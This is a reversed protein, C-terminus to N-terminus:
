LSTNSIPSTISVTPLGNSVVTIAPSIAVAGVNDTAKATLLYTGAAVNAWTIAFPSSTDTGLLTSGEYFEVKSVTGDADSAAANITLNSDEAFVAQNLPSSISVTPASNAVLMVPTSTTVGGRNDTAKATLSHSGAPVNTWSYVFPFTTVTGILTTGRYFDVRSVIGDSDQANTTLLVDSGPPVSGTSPQVALEVSPLANVVLAVPASTVVMGVNDIARATLAYTGSPVDNWTFSYPATTDEGIKVEGQLFEVKSISGDSDSAVAQLSVNAPATVVTGDSPSTLGVLPPSTVTVHVAASTATLGSGDTAVATLTHVGAPTNQWIFNYPPPNTLEGLKVGKDYFEVKTITGNGDWDFADAVIVVDKGVVASEVPSSIAIVPVESVAPADESDGASAIHVGGCGKVCTRPQTLGNSPLSDGNDNVAIVRYDPMVSGSAMRIINILSCDDITNSDPGVETVFTWPAGFTLPKTEIRFKTENGSNDLWSLRCNSGTLASPSVPALPNDIHVYGSIGQSSMGNGESQITTLFYHQSSDRFLYLPFTEPTSNDPYVYFAVKQFTWEAGPCTRCQTYFFERKAPNTNGFQYLPVTGAAQNPHVYFRPAQLQDASHLPIEKTSYYYGFQPHKFRYVTTMASLTLPVPGVNLSKGSKGWLVQANGSQKFFGFGMGSVSQGELGVFAAPIELRAWEGAEPLSGMYRWNETGTTGVEYFNPGWFARHWRAGDHWEIFLQDPKQNPDLFVYTFLQDGPNVPQPAAGEFYHEKFATGSVSQHCATAAGSCPIWRWQDNNTVKTVAGAPLSGNIWQTDGPGTPAPQNFAGTKSGSFDWTARGGDLVFSMGDIDHGNWGFGVKWAPVELRVWEGAKPLPGAYFRSGTGDTGRNITNAGWYARHEWGGADKWELMIERPMNNIDLFVHTFLKVNPDDIRIKTTASDFSHSHVTSAPAVVKKFNRSQHAKTGSFAGPNADTWYWDIDGDARKVAGPPLEDDFWVFEGPRAPQANVGINVQDSRVIAGSDDTAVAKLAYAGDAPPIWELSFRDPGAMTGKGIATNNAFFEVQKVIGDEDSAAATLTVSQQSGVITGEIPAVLSVAPLRTVFINVPVSRTIAGSADTLVAVLTYQGTGVDNWTLGYQGSQIYTAAGLAVSDAFFEVSRIAGLSSSAMATLTIDTGPGFGQGASPSLISITGPGNVFFNVEASSRTRDGNDIAVAKLTHSGLGANWSLGYQNTVGTPTARGLSRPGEFLEVSAITGDPDTATVLINVTIPGVLTQNSTPSTISVLPRSNLNQNARTSVRAVNNDINPDDNEGAVVVSNDLTTGPATIAIEGERALAVITVDVSGGNVVNGLKCYVSGQRFKCTGQSSTASVFTTPEPLVDILGVNPATQPGSNTVHLAYTVSNDAVVPDPSDNATVSLDSSGLDPPSQVLKGVVFHGAREVRGYIMKNGFDPAPTDPSIISVDVWIPNEPDFPDPELHFISLNNFTNQDTVSPVDFSVVHPGSVQATTTVNVATNPLATYGPPLPISSSPADPTFTTQGEEYVNGYTISNVGDQTAISSTDIKAVAHPHGPMFIPNFFAGHRFFLDSIPEHSTPSYWYVIDAPRNVVTRRVENFGPLHGVITKYEILNRLSENPNILSNYNTNEPHEEGPKYRVIGIDLDQTSFALATKGLIPAGLGHTPGFWTGWRWHTHVCEPCGLGYFPHSVHEQSTLHINDWSGIDRGSQVVRVDTESIVPHLEKAFIPDLSPPFGCQAFPVNCDRFLGAVNELSGDVRYHLRTPINVAELVEGGRPEFEYYTTPFFRSCPLHGKPDCLDGVVRKEFKFIQTINLCSKSTPTLRDVGYHAVVTVGRRELDLNFVDVFVFYAQLRARMSSSNSDPTLEGRQASSMKNTKVFFYPVSMMKAMYRGNLRVDSIVLGDRDSVESKLTWGHGLDPISEAPPRPLVYTGCSAILEGSAVNSPLSEGVGGACAPPQCAPNFATVVYSYVVNPNATTDRYIVVLKGNEVRIVKGPATTITTFSTETGSKRKIKYSTPDQEQFWELTIGEMDSSAVLNTPAKPTPTPTPTPIPTPTPTPSAPPLKFSVNDYALGLADVVHHVVVKNINLQTFTVVTPSFIGNGWVPQDTITRTGNQYLDVLAVQGIRDCANVTFVVSNVPQPFTIVFDGVGGSDLSTATNPPSSPINRDTTKIPGGPSSFVVHPYRNGVATDSPVDDFTVLFPTGGGGSQLLLPGPAFNPVEAPELDTFLEDFNINVTRGTAQPAVVGSSSVAAPEAEGNRSHFVSSAKLKRQGNVAPRSNGPQDILSGRTSPAEGANDLGVSSQGVSLVIAGTLLCFGVLLFLFGRHLVCWAGASKM